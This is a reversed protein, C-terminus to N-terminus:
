VRNSFGPISLNKKRFLFFGGAGLAAVGAVSGIVAGAIAGASVSSFGVNIIAKQSRNTFNNNRSSIFQFTGTSVVQAIYSFYTTPMGAADRAGNLFHCSYPDQDSNKNQNANLSAETSYCYQPQQGIWALQALDANNFITYTANLYSYFNMNYSGIPVVNVRDTGDLGEGANGKDNYDSLCWQFHILDGINAYLILPVFDYEYCNRVQAINGRKGRVNVNWINSNTLNSPRPRIAFIYTRDQFTRGYQATDIALRLPLTTNVPLSTNGAGFTYVPDNHLKYSQSYDWFYGMDGSSINYRLRILCRTENQGSPIINWPVWWDYHALIAGDSADPNDGRSDVKALSNDPSNGSLVCAPAPWNWSGWCKWTFGGATCPTQQNFVWAAQSGAVTDLCECKNVVNQSNATFFSCMTLDSTVVAIDIWPTPHWYPWYDREEQCELGYREANNNQRTATAGVNNQVNQDAVFLGMNRERALCKNYFFEPEHNCYTTMKRASCSCSDSNFTGTGATALNANCAAGVDNNGSACTTALPRQETCTDGFTNFVSTDDNANDLTLNFPANYMDAGPRGLSKGDTFYYTTDSGTFQAFSFDCGLQLVIQCTTYEPNTPDNKLQAGNGCTHQNYWQISVMTNVYFFMESECTSYGGAANNQSDWCRQENNRDNSPEDCRDNQGRPSHLYVDAQACVLLAALVLLVLARSM